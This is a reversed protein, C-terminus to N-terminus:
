GWAVAAQTAMKCPLPWMPFGPGMTLLPSACGRATASTSGNSTSPGAGGYDLTNRALESAATVLKTQDVLSFGMEVARTRVVQRVLVVDESRRIPITDAGTTPMMASGM